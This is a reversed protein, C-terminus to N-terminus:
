DNHASLLIVLQRLPTGVASMEITDFKEVFM